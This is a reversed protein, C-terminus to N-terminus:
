LGFTEKLGNSASLGKAAGPDAAFVQHYLVVGDLAPLMPVEFQLTIDGNGAGSGPVALALPLWLSAAPNVLLPAGKIKFAGPPLDGSSVFMVVPVGGLFDLLELGITQGPGPSFIARLKPVFGGTGATGDGYMEFRGSSLTADEPASVGDLEILEPNSYIVTMQGLADIRGVSGQRGCTILGGSRSLKLDNPHAVKWVEPGWFVSLEGTDVRIRIVDSSQYNAVFLNGAGDLAVGGPQNILESDSVLSAQGQPDIYIITDNGLNAVYLGGDDDWAMGDPWNLLGNTSIPDHMVTQTGDYEVRFITSAAMDSMVWAQNDLSPICTVPAQFMGGQSVASVQGDPTIKMLAVWGRDPVYFNGDTGFWGYHPIIFNPGFVTGVGTDADVKWIAGAPPASLALDQPGIQAALSASLLGLALAPVLVLRVPQMEQVETIKGQLEHSPPSRVGFV